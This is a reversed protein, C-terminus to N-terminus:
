DPLSYHGDQTKRWRHLEPNTGAEAKLIMAVHKNNFGLHTLVGIIKPGTNVGESICATILVIALDHKNPKKGNHDILRQLREFMASSSPKSRTEGIGRKETPGALVVSPKKTPVTLHAASRRGNIPTTQM